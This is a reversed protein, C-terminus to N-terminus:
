SGARLRIVLARIRAHIRRRQARTLPTLLRLRLARLQARLRRRPFPPPAPTPTPAPAPGPAPEPAPPNLIRGVHSLYQGWTWVAYLHDTHDNLGDGSFASHDHFGAKYDNVRAAPWNKLPIRFGYRNAAYAVLAASLAASARMQALTLECGKGPFATHEIGWFATSEHYCHWTAADLPAYQFIEGDRGVCFQAGGYGKNPDAVNARLTGAIDNQCGGTWHWVIGIAHGPGLWDGMPQDVPNKTVKHGDVTRFYNGLVTKTYHAAM